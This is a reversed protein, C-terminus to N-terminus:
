IHENNIILEDPMNNAISTSDKNVASLHKWICSTNKKKFIKCDAFYNRKSNRILNKTKNRYKKYEPWENLCKFKDGLKPDEGIM